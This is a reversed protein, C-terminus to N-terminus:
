GQEDIEEITFSQNVMDIEIIEYSINKHKFTDGIQMSLIFPELGAVDSIWDYYYIKRDFLDGQM